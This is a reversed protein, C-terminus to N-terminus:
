PIKASVFKAERLSGHKTMAPKRYKRKRNDSRGRDKGAM